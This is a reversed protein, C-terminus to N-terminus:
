SSGSTAWASLNPCEINHIQLDAYQFVVGLFQWQTLQPNTAKYLEVSGGGGRGNNLNGGCVVYTM